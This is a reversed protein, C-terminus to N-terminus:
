VWQAWVVHAWVVHAWVRTWVGLVCASWASAVWALCARRLGMGVNFVLGSALVGVGADVGAQVAADVGVVYVAAVKGFQTASVVTPVGSGDGGGHCGLILGAWGSEPTGGGVRPPTALTAVQANVRVPARVRSYVLLQQFAIYSALVCMRSHPAASLDGRPRQSPVNPQLPLRPRYAQLGAQLLCAVFECEHHSMQGCFKAAVNPRLVGDQLGSGSGTGNWVDDVSDPLRVLTARGFYDVAGLVDGASGNPCSGPLLALTQLESGSPGCGGCRLLHRTPPPDPLARPLLVADKGVDVSPQAAFFTPHVPKHM